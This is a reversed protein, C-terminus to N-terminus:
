HLIMVKSTSILSGREDTFQLLYMGDPVTVSLYVTNAGDFRVSYVLAGSLSYIKMNYTSGASFGPCRIASGAKMPKAFNCLNRDSGSENIGFPASYYYMSRKYNLWTSSVAEWRQDIEEELLKFTPSYTYNTQEYNVWDNSVVSWLQNLVGVLQLKSSYINAIRTGGTLEYTFNDHYKIYEEQFLLNSDILHYSDTVWENTPPKWYNGTTSELTGNPFYTYYTLYFDEYLQTGPNYLQQRESLKWNFINYIYLTQSFPDWSLTGTNWSETSSSLPDGFEDNIYTIRSSNQWDNATDNWTFEAHEILFGSTDYTETSRNINAWASTATDWNQFVKESLLHPDIYTILNRYNNVWENNSTDLRQTIKQTTSDINDYTLLFREGSEIVQQQGNWEKKYVTDPLNKKLYHSYQYPLWTGAATWIEGLISTPDSNSGSYSYLFHAFNTLLGSSQNKVVYLDETLLGDSNHYKHSISKLAWADVDWDYEYISDLLRDLNPQTLTKGLGADPLGAPNVAQPLRLREARSSKTGKYTSVSTQSYALLFVLFSFIILLNFKTKM